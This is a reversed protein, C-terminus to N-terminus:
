RGILLAKIARRKNPFIKNEALVHHVYSSVLWQGNGLHEIEGRPEKGCYVVFTTSGLYAPRCVVKSKQSM